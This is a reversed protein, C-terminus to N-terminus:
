KRGGRRQWPVAKTRRAPRHRRAAMKKAVASAAGGDEGQGEGEEEGEIIEEEGEEEAPPTTPTPPLLSYTHGGIIIVSPSAGFPNFVSTRTPQASGGTVRSVPTPTPESEVETPEPDGAALCEEDGEECLPDDLASEGEEPEAEGPVCQEYYDNGWSCYNGQACATPGSYGSGGCQGYVSQTKQASALPVALLLAAAASVLIMPTTSIM